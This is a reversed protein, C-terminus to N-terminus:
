CCNPRDSNKDSVVNHVGNTQGSLLSACHVHRKVDGAALSVYNKLLMLDIQASYESSM